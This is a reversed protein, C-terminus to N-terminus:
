RRSLGVAEPGREILDALLARQDDALISLVGDVRGAADDLRERVLALKEENFADLAAAFGEGEFATILAEIEEDTPKIQKKAGFLEDRLKTIVNMQEADLTLHAAVQKFRDKRDRERRESKKEEIRARIADAVLVRQDPDLLAHLDKLVTSGREVRKEIALTAQALADELAQPDSGGGRVIEGATTRLERRVARKDEKGEALRDKIAQVGDAQEVSLEGHDLATDLAMQVPGGSRETDRREEPDRSAVQTACAALGLMVLTGATGVLGLFLRRARSPKKMDPQSKMGSLKDRAVADRGDLV